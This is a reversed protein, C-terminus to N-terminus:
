ENITKSSTALNESELIESWAAKYKEVHNKKMTLNLLTALAILLCSTFFILSTQSNTKLNSILFPVISSMMLLLGYLISFAVQLNTFPTDDRFQMHRREWGIDSNQKEHFIMIYTGARAALLHFLSTLLTAGSVLLCLLGALIAPNISDPKSALWGLMASIITASSGFIVLRQSRMQRIDQRLSDYEKETDIM